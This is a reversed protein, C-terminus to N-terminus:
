QNLGNHEVLQRGVCKVVGQSDVGIHVEDLQTVVRPAAVTAERWSELLEQLLVLIDQLIRLADPTRPTLVLVDRQLRYASLALVTPSVGKSVSMVSSTVVLYVTQLFSHSTM